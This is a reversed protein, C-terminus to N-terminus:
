VHRRELSYHYESMSRCGKSVDVTGNAVAARFSDLDPYFTPDLEARVVDCAKGRKGRVREITKM